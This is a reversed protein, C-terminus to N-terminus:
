EVVEGRRARQHVAYDSQYKFHRSHCNSIEIIDAEEGEEDVGDNCEQQIDGDDEQHTGPREKHFNDLANVNETWIPM